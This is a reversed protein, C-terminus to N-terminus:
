KFGVKALYGPLLRDIQQQLYQMEEKNPEIINKGERESNWNIKDQSATTKGGIIFTIIKNAIKTSKVGFKRWMETTFDFSKYRNSFGEIKRLQAYGGKLEFLHINKGGRKITVWKKEDDPIADWVRRKSKLTKGSTLMPRTSYRSFHHGKSDKQTDRVRLEILNVFDVGVVPGLDSALWKPLNKRFDTLRRVTEDLTMEKM